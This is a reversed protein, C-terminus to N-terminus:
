AGARAALAALRQQLVQRAPERRALQEIRTLRDEGTLLELDRLALPDVRMRLVDLQQPTLPRFPVLQERFALDFSTQDQVQERTVGPMLTEVEPV